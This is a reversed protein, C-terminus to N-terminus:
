TSNPNGKAVYPAEKGMCIVETLVLDLFSIAKNM